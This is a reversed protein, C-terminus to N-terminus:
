EGRDNADLVALQDLLPTAKIQEIQALLELCGGTRVRATLM